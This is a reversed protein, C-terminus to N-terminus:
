VVMKEPPTTSTIVIYIDNIYLITATSNLNLHMFQVSFLAHVTFGLQSYYFSFDEWGFMAGQDKCRLHDTKNAKVTTKINQSILTYYNHVYKYM